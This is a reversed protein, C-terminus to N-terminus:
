WASTNENSMVLWWQLLPRAAARGAIRAYYKIWDKATQIHGKWDIIKVKEDLGGVPKGLVSYLFILICITIM